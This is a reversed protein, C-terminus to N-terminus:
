CTCTASACSAHRRAFSPLRAWYQPPGAARDHIHPPQIPDHIDGRTIAQPAPTRPEPPSRRCSKSSRTSSCSWKTSRTSFPPSNRSATCAPVARTLSRCTSSRTSARPAPLPWSSARRCTCRRKSRTPSSCCPRAREELAHLLLDHMASRTQADLAGFPEDMLLFQSKVAYARALAVRQKMGGSLTKPFANEFGRLGMLAIYHDATESIEKSINNRLTLGFGINQKVTLWPFVGYDQFIVGRQSDPGDIEKGDLTVSGSDQKEFGALINLMTTKGCGSPGIVTIFEGDRITLSIDRLVPLPEGSGTIFSKHVNQLVIRPAGASM